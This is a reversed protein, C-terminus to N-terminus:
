AKSKKLEWTKKIGYLLGLMLVFLVPQDIPLGPPPPPMPPPPNDVQAVASTSLLSLLVSALTMNNIRKKKPLLHIFFLMSVFCKLLFNIRSICLVDTFHVIKLAPKRAMKKM